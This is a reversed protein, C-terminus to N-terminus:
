QYLEAHYTGDDRNHYMIDTEGIETTIHYTGCNKPYMQYINGDHKFLYCKGFRLTYTVLIRKFNDELFRQKCYSLYEVDKRVYSFHFVGKSNSDVFREIFDNSMGVENELYKIFDPDNSTNKEYMLLRQRAIVRKVTDILRQKVQRKEDRNAKIVKRVSAKFKDNTYKGTM